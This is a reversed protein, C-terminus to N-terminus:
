PHVTLWQGATRLVLSLPTLREVAVEVTGPMGHELKGRFGSNPEIELDVRVAGDRVEESVRAVRAEVSGFEGWPFGDLRLRGPQGLRIRGFAASAPFQAAILLRGAPVISALKEGDGVVAGVHLIASEGIRGDVPARVRRREVEYRLGEASATLTQRQAELAAIESYLRELRVDRERDRTAQEQPVRRAASQLTTVAARLRRAEAEAKDLDRQAVLRERMLAQMRSLEAEAYKAAVEAERIRNAAEEASLSAVQEEQGRANEEAAMQSRLRELEPELGQVEIQEQRLRLEDSVADMEVLLEGRRVLRGVQLNTKVVRGPLPSQVPYSAADLEVRASQSIEYLTVPARAAWWCWGGLALAAM